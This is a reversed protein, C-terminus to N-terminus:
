IKLKDTKRFRIKDISYSLLASIFFALIYEIILEKWLLERKLLYWRSKIHFYEKNSSFLFDYRKIPFKSFVPNMLVETMEDKPFSRLIENGFEFPPFFSILFGLLIFIVFSTKIFYNTNM